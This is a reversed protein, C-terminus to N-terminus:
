RITFQYCCMENGDADVQSTPASLVQNLVQQLKLTEVRSKDLEAPTVLSEPNIGTAVKLKHKNDFADLGTKLLDIVAEKLQMEKAGEYLIYLRDREDKIKGDTLPVWDRSLGMVLLPVPLIDPKSIRVVKYKPETNQKDQVVSQATGTYGQGLVRNRKKNKNPNM